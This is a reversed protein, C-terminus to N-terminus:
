APVWLILRHLAASPHRCPWWGPNPGNSNPISASDERHCAVLILLTVIAASLRVLTAWFVDTHTLIEKIIVIGLALFIM